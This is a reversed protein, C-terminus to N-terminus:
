TRTTVRFHGGTPRSAPVDARRLKYFGGGLWEKAFSLLATAYTPQFRPIIEINNSASPIGAVINLDVGQEHFGPFGDM